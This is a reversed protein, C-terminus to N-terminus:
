LESLVEDLHWLFADANEKNFVMPPKIKLVNHLPGDTSILFGRDKMKEVVVDIEPVAPEQTDRNRVLEAGIFLGHGRVDGIVPHKDMLLRLGQLFHEGTELAHQQMGEEQIVQLVARGCAMSVPNGGFTNFYEMGNNFADAIAQTTVVAALPHGNGIPKGLM